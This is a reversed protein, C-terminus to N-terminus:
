NKSIAVGGIATLGLWDSHLGAGCGCDKVSRAAEQGDQGDSDLLPSGTSTAAQSLLFLVEHGRGRRGAIFNRPMRPPQVQRKEHM